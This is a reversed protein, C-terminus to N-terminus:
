NRHGLGGLPEVRSEEVLHHLRQRNSDFAAVAAGVHRDLQRGLLILRRAEVGLLANTSQLRPEDV